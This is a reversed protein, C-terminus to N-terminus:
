LVCEVKLWIGGGGGIVADDIKGGIGARFSHFLDDLGDFLKGLNVVEGM